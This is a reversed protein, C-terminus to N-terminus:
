PKLKALKQPCFEEYKCASVNALCIFEDVDSTIGVTLSDSTCSKIKFDLKENKRQMKKLIM